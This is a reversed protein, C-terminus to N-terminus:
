IIIIGEKHEFDHICLKVVDLLKWSSRVQIAERM